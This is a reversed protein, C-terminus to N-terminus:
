KSFQIHQNWESTKCTSHKWTILFFMFDYAFPHHVSSYDVLDIGNDM